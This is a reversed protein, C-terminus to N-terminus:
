GTQAYTASIALQGGFAGNCAAAATRTGGGFQGYLTTSYDPDEFGATYNIQANASYGFALLCFLLLKKM